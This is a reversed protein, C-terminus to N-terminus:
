GASAGLVIVKPVCHAVLALAHSDQMALIEFKENYLSRTAHTDREIGAVMELLHGATIGAYAPGSNWDM